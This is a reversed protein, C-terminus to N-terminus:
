VYDNKERGGGGVRDQVEVQVVVVVEEEKLGLFGDKFFFFPQVAEHDGAHPPPQGGGLDGLQLGGASDM